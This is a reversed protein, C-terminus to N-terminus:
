FGCFMGQVKKYPGKYQKRIGLFFNGKKSLKKNKKGAEKSTQHKIFRGGNVIRL